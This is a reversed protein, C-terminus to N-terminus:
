RFMARPLDPAVGPGLIIDMAVLAVEPDALEQRLREVRQTPDFM